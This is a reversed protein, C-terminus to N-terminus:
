LQLDASAYQNNSKCGVTTTCLPWVVFSTDNDWVNHLANYVNFVCQTASETWVAKVIVPSSNEVENRQYMESM